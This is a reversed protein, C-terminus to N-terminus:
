QVLEEKERNSVWVVGLVAEVESLKDVHMPLHDDQLVIKPGPSPM